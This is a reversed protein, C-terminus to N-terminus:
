RSTTLTVYVSWTFNFKFKSSINLCSLQSSGYKGRPYLHWQERYHAANHLISLGLVVLNCSCSMLRLLVTSNWAKSLLTKANSSVSENSSVLVKYYRKRWYTQLARAPIDVGGPDRPSSPLSVRHVFGGPKNDAVKLRYSEATSHAFDLLERYLDGQTQRWCRPHAHPTHVRALGVNQHLPLHQTNTEWPTRHWAAGTDRKCCRQM